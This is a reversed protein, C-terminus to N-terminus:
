SSGVGGAAIDQCEPVSVFICYTSCVKAVAQCRPIFLMSEAAHMYSMIPLHQSVLYGVM